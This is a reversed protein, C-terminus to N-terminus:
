ERLPVDGYTDLEKDKEQWLFQNQVTTSKIRFYKTSQM